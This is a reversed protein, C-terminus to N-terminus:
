PRQMQSAARSPQQAVDAIWKRTWEVTDLELDCVNSALFIMGEIRGEADRIGDMHRITQVLDDDFRNPYLFASAPNTAKYRLTMDETLMIQSSVIMGVAFVGVAISLVVIATRTKHHWLDRLVKRWRPSIM